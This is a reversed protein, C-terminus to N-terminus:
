AETNYIVQVIACTGDLEEEEILMVGLKAEVMGKQSTFKRSMEEM